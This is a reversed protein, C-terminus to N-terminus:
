SGGTSSLFNGVNAATSKYGAPQTEILTYFDGPTLNTFDYYGASNTTAYSWGIITTPNNALVMGPEYGRQPRGMRRPTERRPERFRRVCVGLAFLQDPGSLDVNASEYSNGPQSTADWDAVAVCLPASSSSSSCSLSLGNGRGAM